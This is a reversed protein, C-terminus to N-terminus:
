ATAVLPAAEAPAAAGDWDDDDRIFAEPAHAFFVRVTVDIAAIARLWAAVHPAVVSDDLIIEVLVEAPTTGWISDRVHQRLTELDYPFTDGAYYFSGRPSVIHAELM